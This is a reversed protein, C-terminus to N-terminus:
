IKFYNVDMINITVQTEYGDWERGNLFLKGRKRQVSVGEIGNLRERTTKTDWGCTSVYLVGNEKYAIRHGWLYLAHGTSQTNDKKACESRNFAGVIQSTIKKM